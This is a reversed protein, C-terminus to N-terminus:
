RGKVRDAVKRALRGLLGGGLASEARPAEARPAATAASAVPRPPAVTAVVAVPTSNAGDIARAIDDDTRFGPGFLSKAGEEVADAIPTWVWDSADVGVLAQEGNLDRVAPRNGRGDVVRRSILRGAEFRAHGGLASEDNYCLYIASGASRSLTSALVMEVEDPGPLGVADLLLLGGLEFLRLGVHTYPRGAWSGHGVRPAEEGQFDSASVGAASLLARVVADPAVHGPLFLGINRDSM